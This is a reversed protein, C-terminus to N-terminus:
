ATVWAVRDDFRDATVVGYAHQVAPGLSQRRGAALEDRVRRARTDTSLSV